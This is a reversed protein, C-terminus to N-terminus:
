GCAGALEKWLHLCPDDWEFELKCLIQGLSMRALRGDVWKMAARHREELDGLTEDFVKKAEQSWDVYLTELQDSAQYFLNNFFVQNGCRPALNWIGDWRLQKLEQHSMRPNARYRSFVGEEVQRYQTPCAKKFALDTISRLAEYQADRMHNAVESLYQFRGGAFAESFNSVSFVLALFVFVKFRM